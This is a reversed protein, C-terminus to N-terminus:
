PKKEESVGIFQQIDESCEPCEVAITEEIEEVPGYDAIDNGKLTGIQWAKSIVNVCTIEKKCKPCIM